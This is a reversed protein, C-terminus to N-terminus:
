DQEVPALRVRVERKSGDRAVTLSVEAGVGAAEFADQLDEVSEVRKGNVALIRDGWEALRGSRTIRAGELGAREAPSGERVRYIPLGDLGNRAALQALAGHFVVGIGPQVLRGRAILQPVIRSVTDVPIAFGIGASAGTPSKIAANVGILRGMSDLLPGGSNGPNIAADTQIVDRIRRGTPSTIERGLASVVGVTLSHDLGFPNGIALVRQGVVLEKSRGLTLPVLKSAPAEIKLVALDKEPAAGIVEGQYESQDALRVLFRRGGEIVHYNTVIHGQRDWVIGSGTGQPIEFVDFTWFDRALGYNTIHVVSSSARRFVEIDRREEPTLGEPLPAPASERPAATAERAEAGESRPIGGSRDAQGTCYGFAFLLFAAALL